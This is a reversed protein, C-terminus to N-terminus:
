KKGEIHLFTELRFFQFLAIYNKLFRVAPNMFCQGNGRWTSSTNGDEQAKMMQKIVAKFNDLTKFKDGSFEWTNTETAQKRILGSVELFIADLWNELTCPGGHCQCKPCSDSSSWVQYQQLSFDAGQNSWQLMQTIEQPVQDSVQRVQTSIQAKQDSVQPKQDSVQPRQDSVQATQDSVQPSQNSVQPKQNSIQSIQM